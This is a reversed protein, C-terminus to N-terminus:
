FMRLERVPVRGLQMDSRHANRGLDMAGFAFDTVATGSPMGERANAAMHSKCFDDSSATGLGLRQVPHPLGTKGTFRVFFRCSEDLEDMKM